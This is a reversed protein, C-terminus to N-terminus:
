TTVTPRSNAARLSAQDIRRPATGRLGRMGRWLATRSMGVRAAVESVPLSGSEFLRLACELRYQRLYSTPTRGYAQKFVRLFHYPSLRAASALEPLTLERALNAHMYDVAWGIRRALERRTAPRVQDLREAIRQRARWGEVLRAILQQSQEDSWEADNVGAPVTRIVSNRLGHFM